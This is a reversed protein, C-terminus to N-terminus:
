HMGNSLYYGIPVAYELAPTRLRREEDVLVKTLKSKALSCHCLIDVPVQV